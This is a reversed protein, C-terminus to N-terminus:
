KVQGATIIKNPIKCYAYKEVVYYTQTSVSNPFQGFKTKVSVWGYYVVDDQLLKIALFQEKERNPFLLDISDNVWQLKEDIIDGYYLGIIFGNQRNNSIFCHEHCSNFYLYANTIASQNVPYIIIDDVGDQDIDLPLKTYYKDFAYGQETSVVIEPDYTVIIFETDPDPKPKECSIYGIAIIALVTLILTKKM